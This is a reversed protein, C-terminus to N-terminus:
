TCYFSGRGCVDISNIHDKFYSLSTSNVLNNSLSNWLNVIRNAWYFKRIDTRSYFHYLNLDNGRYTQAFKYSNQVNLSCLENIVKYFLIVDAKIRRSELTQLELYQLREQHSKHKLGPLKRTFYRQVSELNDINGKQHPSWVQSGYELIPRVYVEYLHVYFKADHFKFTNFISKIKYHARKIVNNCQVTSKLDSQVYIGVDCMHTVKDIASGNIYYTFDIRSKGICLNKTKDPNLKLQWDSAWKFINNLDCQLLLCDLYSTIEKYLKTDDAYMSIISHQVVNVIDSSFCLFLLPGLVTGQPVGSKVYENNSFSNGVKVKQYRNILFSELWKYASGVFGMKSLKFLLKSHVVTDFCKSYDLYIVETQNGNDFSRTWNDLCEILNTVTSKKALFGHQVKPLLNNDILYRIMQERVIRELIKSLVSTLSVPRYNSPLQIDGKKFIPIIHALKWEDPVFGEQLCKNYMNCLPSAINAVINKLFFATINDPGPASNNKLKKIIRILIRTDCSFSNISNNCNVDFNPLIGNDQVFVKTYQNSLANAKDEDTTALSGDDCKLCPIASCVTNQSRIYRYLKKPDTSKAGFLKKEYNCKELMFELNFEKSAKQYNAYTVINRKRDYSRWRRQKILRLRKLKGSFWPVNKNCQYDTFPVFNYVATDIINKFAYWHESADTCNSYIADWDLTCLFANMLPYDAQKFNPKRMVNQDQQDFPLMKCIISDHDSTSFPATPYIDQILNRDSCFMLDLINNKRTPFDVCQFSGSKFCLSLLQKSIHSNATLTDWEIDPLNFDGYITFHKVNDLYQLINNFLIESDDANANPPRYVVGIRVKAVNTLAVDVLVCECTNVTFSAVVNSKLSNKVALLVGGGPNTSRDQRYITYDPTFATLKVENNLWTETIALIDPSESLILQKLEDQKNCM